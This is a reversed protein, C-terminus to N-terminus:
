RDELLVEGKTMWSLGFAWLALSELWFVPKLEALGTGSLFLEYVAILVICALM